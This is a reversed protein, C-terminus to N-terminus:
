RKTIFSSIATSWVAVVGLALAAPVTLILSILKFVCTFFARLIITSKKRETLRSNQDCTYIKKAPVTLAFLLVNLYGSGSANTTQVIVADFRRDLAQAKKDFRFESKHNYVYVRDIDAYKEMPKVGHEHTLVSLKAGAFRDKVAPLNLDLQQTSASRIILIEM